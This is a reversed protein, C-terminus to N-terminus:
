QAKRLKLQYARDFLKKEQPTSLEYVVSAQQPSLHNFRWLWQADSKTKGSAMQQREFNLKSQQYLMQGRTLKGERMSKVLDQQIKQYDKPSQLQSEIDRNFEHREQEEPTHGGIPAKERAFEIIRNQAKTRAIEPSIPMIGFFSEAKTEPSEKAGVRREAGRVSFPIFNKAVFGLEQEVQKVLPDDPNRIQAGYYDKNELMQSLESWMPHLKNTLTKLPHMKYSVIDKLYSPFNVREPTGDPLTQGTKPYFYDRLEEPGKGTKMYQYMAGMTGVTIPLAMVYAMRRTMVPEGKKLRSIIKASDLVGGGLERITGLNWGVARVTLFSLDKLTRNWFLNDYVMEGMRNDVSDWIKGLNQRIQDRTVNPGMKEIEYRAMDTFSGLKLRPVVEQMLPHSVAQIAAFPARIVAGPYNGTRIATMFNELSNNKFIQPMEVRGGSALLGDVIKAYDGGVSGPKTYEKLVKNGKLFYELQNIGPIGAVGRAVSGVGKLIDGRALQEIGLALKGTSSDIMTFLFHYGSLGLQALNMTNGMWRIGRFWKFKDLGPSLFNNIMRAADEQAYYHGRLVREPAGPAGSATTTPRYEVVNAIRDDIKAYGKPPIDSRSFQALGKDKFESFIKQGMVYRDMEHFKLLSLEIPNWTVPQLGASVGDVTTPVSRRKLFSAPGKLPRKGLIRAYWSVAADPDKWIHPFYDQMVHQLKGTGLARVERVRNNFENRLSSQLSNLEPTSQAHGLEVRNIFDLSAPKSLRDMQSKAKSFAERAQVDKRALRAKGERIIGGALKAGEGMSPPALLSKVQKATESVTDAAEKAFPVLDQEVFEKAGPVMTLQLEGKPGETIKPTVNSQTDGQRTGGEVKAPETPSPAVEGVKAASVEPAAPSAGETVATPPAKELIIESPTEPIANAKLKGTVVMQSLHDAEAQTWVGKELQDYVLKEVSDHENNTRALEDLVEALAAKKSAGSPAPQLAEGAVDAPPTEKRGYLKNALEYYRKAREVDRAGPSDQMNIEINHTGEGKSVEEDLMQRRWDKITPLWNERLLQFEREEGVLKPAEPIAEPTASVPSPAAKQLEPPSPPAEKASPELAPEPAVPPTEPTTRLRPLRGGGLAYGVATGLLPAVGAEVKQATTSQPDRIARIAESTAEPVSGAAQGATLAQLAKSGPMLWYAPASAAEALNAGVNVLGAGVGTGTSRPLRLIPQAPISAVKAINEAAGLAAQEQEGIFGERQLKTKEQAFGQRKAEKVPDTVPEFESWDPTEQETTVPEFDQWDM